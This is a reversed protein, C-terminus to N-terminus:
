ICTTDSTIDGITNDIVVISGAINTFICIINIGIFAGLMLINGVALSITIGGFISTIDTLVVGEIEFDGFFTFKEWFNCVTSRIVM